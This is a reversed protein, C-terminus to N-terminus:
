KKCAQTGQQPKSSNCMDCYEYSRVKIQNFIGTKKYKEYLKSSTIIINESQNNSQIM